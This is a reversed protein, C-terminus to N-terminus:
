PHGRSPSAGSTLGPSSGGQLLQGPRSHAPTMTPLSNLMCPFSGFDDANVLWRNKVDVLLGKARLFDAGLLPNAVKATVFDWTFQWGHFCLLARRKGYTQIMSGNTAELPASCSGTWIDIPLAPLVSVQSGMDCLFWRGSLTDMIFFCAAWMALVGWMVRDASAAHHAANKPRQALSQM